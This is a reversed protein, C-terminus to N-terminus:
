EKNDDGFADDDQVGSEDSSNEFILAKASKLKNDNVLEEENDDDDM